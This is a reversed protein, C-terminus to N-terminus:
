GCSRGCCGVDGYVQQEEDAVKTFDDAADDPKWILIKIDRASYCGGIVTEHLRGQLIATVSEELATAKPSV